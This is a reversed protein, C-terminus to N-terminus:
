EIVLEFHRLALEAATLSKLACSGKAGDCYVGSTDSILNNIAKEIKDAKGALYLLAALVGPAAAYFLGCLASLRGVYIKAYHGVLHALMTAKFIEEESLEFYYQASYYSVLSIFIGQNGSGSSALAPSAAGAMRAGTGDAAKAAIENLESFDSRKRYKNGVGSGIGERGARAITSNLKYGDKLLQFQSESFEAELLEILQYINMEKLRADLEKVENDTSDISENQYTIKGDVEIERLDDHNGKILARVQNDAEIFAEVYVPMKDELVEFEVKDIIELAQDLKDELDALITLKRELPNDAFYGLAAATKNGYYKNIGPLGTSMGNKYVFGDIKIKIKELEGQSHEAAAAVAFAVAGPETCGQALVLEKESFVDLLRKM